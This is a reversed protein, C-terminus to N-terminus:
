RSSNRGHLGRRRGIASNLVSPAAPLRRCRRRARRVTALSLDGAIHVPTEELTPVARGTWLPHGSSLGSSLVRVRGRVARHRSAPLCLRRFRSPKKLGSSRESRRPLALRGSLLRLHDAGLFTRNCSKVRKGPRAVEDPNYYLGGLERITAGALSSKGGGNVGAIVYICASERLSM